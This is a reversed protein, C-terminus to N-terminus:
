NICVALLLLNQSYCTVEWVHREFVRIESPTQSCPVSSLIQVSSLPSFQMILIEMIQVRRWTYKSHDHWPPNSPCPMYYSNRSLLIVYIHILNQHSLWSSLPWQLNTSTPPVIINFHIKLLFLITHYPHVPNIQSLMSVLSPIKHDLYIFRRSGM